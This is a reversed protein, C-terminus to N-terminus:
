ADLSDTVRMSFMRADGPCLALSSSIAAKIVRLSVCPIIGRARELLQRHRDPDQPTVLIGDQRECLRRIQRGREFQMAGCAGAMHQDVLAGFSHQTQQSRRDLRSRLM